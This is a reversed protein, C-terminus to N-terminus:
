FDDSRYDPFLSVESKKQFLIPVRNQKPPTNTPGPTESLKWGPPPVGYGLPVIKNGNARGEKGTGPRIISSIPFVSGGIIQVLM